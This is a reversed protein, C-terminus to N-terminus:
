ERKPISHAHVDEGGVTRLVEIARQEEALTEVVVWLLLGGLELQKQCLRAHKKGTLWKLVQGVSAVTGGAAAAALIM